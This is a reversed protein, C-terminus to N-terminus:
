CFVGSRTLKGVNKKRCKTKTSPVNREEECGGGVGAERGRGLVPKHTGAYQPMVTM